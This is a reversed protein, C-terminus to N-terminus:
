VTSTQLMTLTLHGLHDRIAKTNRAMRSGKRAAPTHRSAASSRRKEQMARAMEPNAVAWPKRQKQKKRAM